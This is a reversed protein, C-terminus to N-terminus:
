RGRLSLPTGPTIPLLQPAGPARAGVVSRTAARAESAPVQQLLLEIRPRQRRRLGGHGVLWSAEQEASPRHGAGDDGNQQHESTKDGRLDRRNGRVSARGSRRGSGPRIVVEPGLQAGVQLGVELHATHRVV